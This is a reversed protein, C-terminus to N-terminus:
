CTLNFLKVIFLSRFTLSLNDKQFVVCVSKIVQACWNFHANKLHGHEKLWGQLWGIRTIFKEVCGDSIGEHQLSLSSFICLQLSLSVSCPREKVKIKRESKLTQDFVAVHSNALEARMCGNVDVKFGSEGAPYVYFVKRLFTTKTHRYMSM